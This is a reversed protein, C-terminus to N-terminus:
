CSYLTLLGQLGTAFDLGLSGKLMILPVSDAVVLSMPRTSRCSRPSICTVSLLLTAWLTQWNQGPPLHVQYPISGQDVGYECGAGM